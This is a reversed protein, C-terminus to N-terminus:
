PRPIFAPVPAKAGIIRAGTGMPTRIVAYRSSNKFLTQHMKIPHFVSLTPKNRLGAGNIRMIAEDNVEVLSLPRTASQSDVDPLNKDAPLSWRHQFITMI